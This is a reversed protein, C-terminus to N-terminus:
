HLNEIHVELAIVGKTKIFKSIAETPLAGIIVGMNGGHSIFGGFVMGM